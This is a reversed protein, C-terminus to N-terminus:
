SGVGARTRYTTRSGATSGEKLLLRQHVFESMCKLILMRRGERKPVADLLRAVQEEREGGKLFTSRLPDLVLVRQATLAPRDQGRLGRSGLGLDVQLTTAQGSQDGPTANADVGFAIHEHTPNELDAAGGGQITCERIRRNRASLDQM